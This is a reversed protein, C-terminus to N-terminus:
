RQRKNRPSTSGRAEPWRKILGGPLECGRRERYRHRLYLIEDLDNFLVASVGVTYTRHTLWMIRRRVPLPLVRSQPPILDRLSDRMSSRQIAGNTSGGAEAM